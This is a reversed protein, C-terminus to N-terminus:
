LQSVFKDFGVQCGDLGMEVALGGIFDLFSQLWECIINDPFGRDAVKHKAAFFGGTFVVTLHKGGELDFAELVKLVEGRLVADNIVADNPDHKNSVAHLIRGDWNPRLNLYPQQVNELNSIPLYRPDQNKLVPLNYLGAGTLNRVFDASRYTKRVRHVALVVTHTTILKSAIM